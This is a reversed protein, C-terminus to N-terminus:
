CKDLKFRGRWKTGVEFTVRFERFFDHLGLMGDEMADSGFATVQVKHNRYICDITLPEGIRYSGGGTGTVAGVTKGASFDVGLRQLISTPFVSLDTGSDIVARHPEEHGQPGVLRVPIVALPRDDDLHLKELDIWDGM